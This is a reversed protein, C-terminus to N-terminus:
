KFKLLGEVSIDEDVDSWHIGIGNGILRWNERQKQSANFLKPFWVLPVSIERGDALIVKISDESIRVDVAISDLKDLLSSM